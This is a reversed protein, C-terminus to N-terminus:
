STGFPSTVSELFKLWTFRTDLKNRIATIFNPCRITAEEQLQRLAQPKVITPNETFKEYQKYLGQHWDRLQAITQGEEEAAKPYFIVQYDSLLAISLRCQDLSKKIPDLPQLLAQLKACLQQRNMTSAGEVGWEQAIERLVKTSLTEPASLECYVPVPFRKTNGSM